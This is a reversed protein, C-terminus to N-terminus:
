KIKEMFDVVDELKTVLEDLNDSSGFQLEMGEEETLKTVDDLFQLFENISEQLTQLQEQLEIDM